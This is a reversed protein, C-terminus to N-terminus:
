GFLLQDYVQSIARYNQRIDFGCAAKRRGRRGMLVRLEQKGVLTKLRDHLTELDGPDVLYGNHGDEVLEPIGGVPTSVVALGYAMAELISVPMGEGYTPLVFIDSSILLHKKQREDIWGLYEVRDKLLPASIRKMLRAVEGNGGISLRIEYGEKVLQEFVILFDFLGKRPGILGLFVMKVPGGTKRQDIEKPAPLLIGNPIVVCNSHPFLASIADKWAQSLCIVTDAEEFFFQLRKKWFIRANKYQELFLAGHLHLIVKRKFSRCIKFFIYKRNPSPLDGCHIHVIDVRKTLLICFLKAIGALMVAVKHPKTGDEHTVVFELNYRCALDTKLYMKLMTSIGGKVKMNPAIHVIRQM